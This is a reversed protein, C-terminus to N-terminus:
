LGSQFQVESILIWKADYYLRLTVQSGIQHQLSVPVLRAYDMVDDRLYAYNVTRRRTAGSEGGSFM